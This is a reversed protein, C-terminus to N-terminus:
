APQAPPTSRQVAAPHPRASRLTRRGFRAPPRLDALPQPLGGARAFRFAARQTDAADRADDHRGNYDTLCCNDLCTKPWRPSEGRCVLTLTRLPFGTAEGRPRCDHEGTAVPPRPRTVLVAIPQPAPAPVMRDTFM